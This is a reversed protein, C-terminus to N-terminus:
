HINKSIITFHIRQRLKLLTLTIFQLSEPWTSHKLTLIALLYHMEAIRTVCDNSCFRILRTSFASIIINYKIFKKWYWAVAVHLRLKWAHRLTFILGNIADHIKTM